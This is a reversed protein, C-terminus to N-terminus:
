AKTTAKERRKRAWGEKIVQKARGLALADAPVPHTIVSGAAVYAGEGIEIPAVLTSNSGVFVGKGITTQHKARGDYNCTITGAGVNVEEGITSDGLYALHMAKAGAGMRTKKLEVFNGIHAGAAVDNEMRLRSYPGIRAGAGVRSTGIVTFPGVEVGDSLQSDRIISCAGIRCAEGIKTDGLIQAFPEIVTDIGIAVANDVTVTEPKEITVGALMLERVKRERFTRDAAALELRNNIGLLEVPNEAGYADIGHGARILIDIMDTLYYERAPNNTRLEGVHKWFLDARFCYIGVNVERIALQEPTGAKQEVVALVRGSGDRIVRGYGTPDDFQATVITAAADSAKQREVLSAIIAKPILPCDGYYVVLLGGLQALSERGVMLAHGTGKQETQEIFRVGRGEVASRVEGAQHGVVVFVRDPAAIPLATEVAHEILTKGGAQHLVKARRSKMRTGLGAALIVVTVRDDTGM